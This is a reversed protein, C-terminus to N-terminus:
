CLTKWTYGLLVGLNPKCGLTEEIKSSIDDIINVLSISGRNRRNSSLWSNNQEKQKNFNNERLRGCCLPFGNQQQTINRAPSFLQHSVVLSSPLWNVCFCKFFNVVTKWPNNLFYIGHQEADTWHHIAHSTPIHYSCFLPVFSVAQEPCETTFIFCFLHLLLLPTFFCPFHCCQESNHQKVQQIGPLQNCSCPHTVSTRPMNQCGRHNTVTCLQLLM